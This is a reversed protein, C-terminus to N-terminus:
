DLVAALYLQMIQASAPTWGGTAALVVYLEQATSGAILPLPQLALTGYSEILNSGTGGINWASFSITGLKTLDDAVLSAFQLQDAAPAGTPTVNFVHGTIAGMNAVGIGSLSAVLRAGTLLGSGAVQRFFTGFRFVTAGSSGLAMGATYPTANAPRTLAADAAQWVNSMGGLNGQFTTTGGTPGTENPFKAM